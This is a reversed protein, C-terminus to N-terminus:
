YHAKNKCNNTAWQQAIVMFASDDLADILKSIYQMDEEKFHQQLWICFTGEVEERKQQAALLPDDLFTQQKM